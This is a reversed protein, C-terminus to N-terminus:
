KRSIYEPIEKGLTPSGLVKYKNVGASPLNTACSENVYISVLQLKVM